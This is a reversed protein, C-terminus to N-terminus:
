LTKIQYSFNDILNSILNSIDILNGESEVLSFFINERKGMTERYKVDSIAKLAVLCIAM